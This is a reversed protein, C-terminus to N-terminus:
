TFFHLELQRALCYPLTEEQPTVYLAVAYPLYCVVLTLEVVCKISGKQISGHGTSNSPNVTSALRKSTASNPQSAFSAYNEVLSFNRHSHLTKYRHQQAPLNSPPECLLNDWLCYLWGWLINYNRINKEIDCSTM